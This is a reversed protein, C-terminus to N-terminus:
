ALQRASAAKVYKAVKSRLKSDEAVLTLKHKVALVIYSTDYATLGTSLAVDLM